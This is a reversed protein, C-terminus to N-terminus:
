VKREEDVIKMNSFKVVSQNEERDIDFLMPFGLLDFVSFVKENMSSFKIDGGLNRVDEIFAMFVGLGASSIYDLAKFNILIKHSGKDITQQIATELDPATHADLFGHLELCIIDDMKRSHIKFKKQDVM